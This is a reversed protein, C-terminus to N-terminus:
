RRRYHPRRDDVAAQYTLPHEGFAELAGDLPKGPALEFANFGCRELYRLNDRLVAGVARLEGGFGHRERLLRAVSYGRGDTFAPFEVAILALRDLAPIAGPLRDSPVRVGLVPHRALLGDVDSAFRALRFIPHLGPAPESTDPVHAFDDDVIARDRIIAM